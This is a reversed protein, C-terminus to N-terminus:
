CKERRFAPKGPRHTRSAAHIGSNKHKLTSNKVFYFVGIGVDPMSAPHQYAAKIM